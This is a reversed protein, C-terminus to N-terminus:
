GSITPILSKVARIVLAAMYVQLVIQVAGAAVPWPFWAGLGDLASELPDFVSGMQAVLTEVGSDAPAMDCLWGILGAWLGYFWEIIM